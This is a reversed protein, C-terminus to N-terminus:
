RPAERVKEAICAQTDAFGYSGADGGIWYTGDTQIRTLKVQLPMRGEQQCAAWADEVLRQQPTPRMPECASLGASTMLGLLVAVMLDRRARVLPRRLSYAM